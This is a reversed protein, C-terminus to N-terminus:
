GECYNAAHPTKKTGQKQRQRRRPSSSWSRPINQINEAAHHEAFWFVMVAGCRVDTTYVSSIYGAYRCLSVDILWSCYLVTCMVATKSVCSRGLYLKARV